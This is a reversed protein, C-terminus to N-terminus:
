LNILPYEMRITEAVCNIVYLVFKCPDYALLTNELKAGSQGPAVISKTFFLRIVREM